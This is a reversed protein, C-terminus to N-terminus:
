IARMVRQPRKSIGARREGTDEILQKQMLAKYRATVSSYPHSPFMARVDDSICGRSGFSKIANYVLEELVTTNVNKAAQHSTDPDKKRVLKKPNTGFFSQGFMDMTFKDFRNKM